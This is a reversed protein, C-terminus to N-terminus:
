RVAAARTRRVLEPPPLGKFRTTTAIFGSIVPSGTERLMYNGWLYSVFFGPIQVEFRRDVHMICNNFINLPLHGAEISRVTDEELLLEPVSLAEVEPQEQLDQGQFWHMTGVIRCGAFLALRQGDERYLSGYMGSPFLLHTTQMTTPRGGIVQQVAKLPCM